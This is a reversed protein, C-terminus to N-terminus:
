GLEETPCRRILAPSAGAGPRRGVGPGIRRVPGRALGAPRPRLRHDPDRPRGRPRHALHAGGRRRDGPRPPRRSRRLPRDPLRDRARHVRGPPGGARLRDRPGCPAARGRDAAPVAGPPATRSGTACPSPARGTPPGAATEFFLRGSTRLDDLQVALPRPAGEAIDADRAEASAYMPRGSLVNVLADANRALHALVHGRTWGPLRSPEGVAPEALAEVARTLRDTAERLLALDHGHDIM